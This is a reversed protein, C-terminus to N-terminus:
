GHLTFVRHPFCTGRSMAGPVIFISGNANSEEKVILQINAQEPLHTNQM